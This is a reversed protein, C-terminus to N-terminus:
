LNQFCQKSALALDTEVTKNRLCTSLGLIVILFRHWFIHFKFNKLINWCSIFRYLTQENKSFSHNDGMEVRYFVTGFLSYNQKLQIIAQPNGDMEMCFTTMLTTEPAFEASVSTCFVIAKGLKNLRGMGRVPVKRHSLFRAMSPQLSPTRPCTRSCQTLLEPGLVSFHTSRLLAMVLPSCRSELLTNLTEPHGRSRKALFTAFSSLFLAKPTM